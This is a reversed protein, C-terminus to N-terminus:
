AKQIKQFMFNKVLNVTGRRQLRLKSDEAMSSDGDM